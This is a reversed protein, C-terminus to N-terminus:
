KSRTESNIKAFLNIKVTSTTGRASYTSVGILFDLIVAIRIARLVNYDPVITDYLM